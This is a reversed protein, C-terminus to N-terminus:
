ATQWSMGLATATVEGVIGNRASIGFKHEQFELVAYLTTAGFQGNIKHKFYGKGQLAQQLRVVLIGQSGYRLKAAVKLKPNRCAQQVESGNLLIYTFERQSNAYANQRFIAWAGTEGRQGRKDCDPHGVVVQCGASAFDSQIDQCWAAHINDYPCEYEVRDDGEYDFDDATRQIPMNNDYRFAHHGTNKNPLHRGKSYSEFVGTMLQNTGEGGRNLSNRIYKQHPVTSGAFVAIGEGRVWQGLTCRPHRYNTEVVKLFHKERFTYDREVPLCGRIGFFVMQQERPLSFRNIELLRELHKPSLIFM